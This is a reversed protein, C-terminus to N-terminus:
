IVLLYLIIHIYIYINISTYRGRQFIYFDFPIIVNGIYPFYLINRVVLWIYIYIYIINYIYIYIIYMCIYINYIIYM